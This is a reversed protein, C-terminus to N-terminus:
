KLNNLNGVSPCHHIRVCDDSAFTEKKRTTWIFFSLLIRQPHNKERARSKKKTIKRTTTFTCFIVDHKIKKKTQPRLYRVSIPWSPHHTMTSRLLFYKRSFKPLYYIFPHLFNLSMSYAGQTFIQFKMIDFPFKLRLIVLSFHVTKFKVPFQWVLETSSNNM